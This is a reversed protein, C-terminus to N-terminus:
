ARPPKELLRTPVARIQVFPEPLDADPLSQTQITWPFEAIAVVSCCSACVGCRHSSDPLQKVGEPSSKLQTTKGHKAHDHKAGDATASHHHGTVASTQHQKVADGPVMGCFLMSAAAFGQLPLAFMMLCLLLYRVRSM